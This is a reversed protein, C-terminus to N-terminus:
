ENEKRRLLWDRLKEGATYAIGVPVYIFIFFTLYLFWLFMMSDNAEFLAKAFAGILLYILLVIIVYIM